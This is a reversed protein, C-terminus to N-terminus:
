DAAAQRNHLQDFDNGQREEPSILNAKASYIEAENEAMLRSGGTGVEQVFAHSFDQKPDTVGALIKEVSGNQAAVRSEMMRRFDAFQPRDGYKNQYEKLVNLLENREKIESNIYATINEQEAPSYKAAFDPKVEHYVGFPNEHAQAAFDAAAQHSIEPAPINEAVPAAHEQPNVAFNDNKEWLSNGQAQEWAALHKEAEPNLEVTVKARLNEISQFFDNSMKDAPLGTLVVRNLNRNGLEKLAEKSISTFNKLDVTGANATLHRVAEADNLANGTAVEPQGPTPVHQDDVAWQRGGQTQEWAAFRQDAAPNMEVTLKEKLHAVSRLIDDTMNDAKLGTLVVRGSTKNSLAELAEKSISTTNKLDVTGPNEALHRAVSADNLVNSAVPAEQDPTPMHQEDVAWIKGGQADQWHAFGKEVLDNTGVTCSEKLHALAAYAADDMKDADLGTLIIYGDTKGCMAELAKPTISNVNRLDVTGSKEALHRAAEVDTFAGTIEKPNKIDLTAAHEPEAAAATEHSAVSGAQHEPVAANHAAVDQYGLSPRHFASPQHIAAGVGQRIPEIPQTEGAGALEEAGTGQGHFVNISEGDPM